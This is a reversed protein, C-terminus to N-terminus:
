NLDYKLINLITKLKYIDLMEDDTPTKSETNYFAPITNSVHTVFILNVKTLEISIEEIVQTEKKPFTSKYFVYLLDFNPQRTLSKLKIKQKLEIKLVNYTKLIELMKQKLLKNNTEIKNTTKELMKEFKGKETKKNTRIKRFENEM